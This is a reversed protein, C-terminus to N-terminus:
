GRVHHMRLPPPFPLYCDPATRPILGFQAAHGPHPSPSPRLGPRADHEQWRHGSTVKVYGCLFAVFCHPLLHLLYEPLCPRLLRLPSCLLFSLVEPPHHDVRHLLQIDIDPAHARACRRVFAFKPIRCRRPILELPAGRTEGQVCLEM